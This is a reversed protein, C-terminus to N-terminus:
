SAGTVKLSVQTAVPTSGSAVTDAWQMTIIDGQTVTFSHGVTTDSCATASGTISCSLSTASNSHYVTYTYVATGGPATTLTVYLGAVTGATSIPTQTAGASTSFTCGGATFTTLGSYNTGSGGCGTITTTLMYVASGGSSWSCTSVGSSPTGCNLVQGSSPNASPLQLGYATFSASNPGLWGATNSGIAPATTNGILEVAGAHVGDSAATLGSNGVVPETITVQSGNDSISSPQIAGTGNGVFVTGSAQTTRGSGGDAVPLPFALLAPAGASGETLFCGPSTNCGGINNWATGNWYIWDGVRIPTPFLNNLAGSNTTAGTGGNPIGLTGTVDSTNLQIAAEFNWTVVNAVNQAQFYGSSAAGPLVMNYPVCTLPAVWNINSGIGPQTGCGMGLVGASGSAGTTALGNATAVDFIGGSESENSNGLTTSNTVFIPLTGPTGSGGIGGGGGGGVLQWAGDFCNYFNGNATNEAFQMSTCAGSPAGSFLLLTMNGLQASAAAPLLLFLSALFLKLTKM